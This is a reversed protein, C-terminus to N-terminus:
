LHFTAIESFIGMNKGILSNASVLIFGISGGTTLNCLIIFDQMLVNHSKYLEHNVCFDAISIWM